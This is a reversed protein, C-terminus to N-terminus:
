QSAHGKYMTPIMQDLAALDSGDHKQLFLRTAERLCDADKVADTADSMVAPLTSVVSSLELISAVALMADVKKRAANSRDIMGRYFAGGTDTASALTRLSYEYDVMAGTVYLRRLEQPTAARNTPASPSGPSSVFNHRVEGQSWAVLDFDSATKHSGKNVLEENSVIHCSYCNAAIAYLMESHIMGKAAAAALRQQRAAPTEDKGTGMTLVKAGAVGGAKNHISVWAAGPGHCSECSVGWQPSVDGDKVISTYHCQRCTSERKMSRQGMANLIELARPSRHRDTFDTYHVTNRWAEVERAHCGACNNDGTDPGVIVAARAAEREPTWHSAAPLGLPPNPM